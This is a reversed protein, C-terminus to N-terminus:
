GEQKESAAVLWLCASAVALMFFGFRTIPITSVNALDYIQVYLLLCIAQVGVAFGAGRRTHMLARALLVALFVVYLLLGGFGLQLAWDLWANHAHAYRPGPADPYQSLRNEFASWVANYGFGTFPQEALLKSSDAWIVTRSTFTPDRGMRLAFHDMKPSPLTLYFAALGLTALTAYFRWRRAMAIWWVVSTVTVAIIASKSDIYLLFGVGAAAGAGHLWRPHSRVSFLSLLILLGLLFGLHNRHLTVGAFTAGVSGHGMAGVLLSGVLVAALVQLVHRFIRELEGDFTVVFAFLFALCETSMLIGALSMEMNATWVLSWVAYALVLLATGESVALRGARRIRDLSPALCFILAAHEYYSPDQNALAYILVGFQLLFKELRGRLDADVGYRLVFLLGALVVSLPTYYQGGLLKFLVASLVLASFHIM